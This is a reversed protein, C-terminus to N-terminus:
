TAGQCIGAVFLQNLSYSTNAVTERRVLEYYAANRKMFYILAHLIDAPTSKPEGKNENENAQNQPGSAIGDRREDYEAYGYAKVKCVVKVPQM